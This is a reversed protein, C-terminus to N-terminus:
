LFLLGFAARHLKKPPEPAHCAPRRVCDLPLKRVTARGAGPSKTTKRMMWEKATVILWFSERIFGGLKPGYVLRRRLVLTLFNQSM